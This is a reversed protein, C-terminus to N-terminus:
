RRRPDGQTRGQTRGRPQGQTQRRPDGQTQGRPQGQTQGRPDGQTRRRPDGQHQSSYQSIDPTIDKKVLSCLIEEDVKRIYPINRKDKTIDNEGIMIKFIDLLIRYLKNNIFNVLIASISESITHDDPNLVNNSTASSVKQVWKTGNLIYYNKFQAFGREIADLELNKWNEFINDRYLSIFKIVDKISGAILYIHGLQDFTHSKPVIKYDNMLINDATIHIHTMVEKKSNIMILPAFFQTIHIPIEIWLKNNRSDVWTSVSFLFKFIIIRGETIKIFPKICVIKNNFIYTYELNCIDNYTKMKTTIFENILVNIKKLEDLDDTSKVNIPIYEDKFKVSEEFKGGGKGYFVYLVGKKKKISTEREKFSKLKVFEGKYKVYKTKTVTGKAKGRVYINRTKSLVTEKGCLIFDKTKM